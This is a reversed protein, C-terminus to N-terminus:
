VKSQGGGQGDRLKSLAEALKAPDVASGQAAAVPTGMTQDASPVDAAMAPTNFQPKAPLTPGDPGKSEAQMVGSGWRVKMGSATTTSAQPQAPTAPQQPKAPPASQEHSYGGPMRPPLASNSNNVQAAAAQQMGSSFTARNQQHMAEWSGRVHAPLLGEYESRGLAFDVAEPPFARLLYKIQDDASHYQLVQDWPKWLDRVRAQMEADLPLVDEMAIDYYPRETEKIDAQFIRMLRGGEPSCWDGLMFMNGYIQDKNVRAVEDDGTVQSPSPGQYEPNKTNGLRSFTLALSIPGCFLAPYQPEMEGTIKNVCPKGNTIFVAAQFFINNQVKSIQAPKIKTSRVWECWERPLDHPSNKATDIMAKCFKTTPDEYNTGPIRTIYTFKEMVGFKRIVPEVTVADGFDDFADSNRIPAWGGDPKPCPFVRIVTPQDWSPLQTRHPMGPARLLFGPMTDLGGSSMRERFSM